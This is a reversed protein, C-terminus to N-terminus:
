AKHPKPTAELIQELHRLKEELRDERALIQEYHRQTIPKDQRALWIVASVMIGMLAVIAALLTFVWAFKADTARELSDLRKEVGEIRMELRKEVVQVEERVLQRIEKLDEKTLAAEAWAGSMLVGAMLITFPKMGGMM